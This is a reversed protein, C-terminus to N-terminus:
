QKAKSNAPVVQIDYLTYDFDYVTAQIQDGVKLTKLVEVKDVKYPMTMADMYGEVKEHNVTVNKGAESIAEVKGRLIHSKKQPASGKTQASLPALPGFSAFLGGFLVM